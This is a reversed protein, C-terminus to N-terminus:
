ATVQERQFDIGKQTRSLDLGEAVSRVGERTPPQRRMASDIDSNMTAFVKSRITYPDTFIDSVYMQTPQVQRYLVNGRQCLDGLKVWLEVQNVQRDLEVAVASVEEHIQQMEDIAASRKADQLEQRAVELDATCAAHAARKRRLQTGLDTAKKEAEQAAKTNAATPQREAVAYLAELAAAAENHTTELEAIAADITKLEQQLKGIQQSAVDVRTAM